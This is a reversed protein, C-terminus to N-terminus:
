RDSKGADEIVGQTQNRDNPNSSTFLPQTENDNNEEENVGDRLEDVDGSDDEEKEDRTNDKGKNKQLRTERDKACSTRCPLDKTTSQNQNELANLLPVHFIM